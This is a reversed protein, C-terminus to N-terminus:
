KGEMPKFLINANVGLLVLDKEGRINYCPFNGEFEMDWNKHLFVDM